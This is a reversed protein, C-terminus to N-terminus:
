GVVVGVDLVEVDVMEGVVDVMEGVTDVMEDVVELTVLGVVVEVDVLVGAVDLEVLAGVVVVAVSVAGGVVVLVTLVTVCARGYVRPAGHRGSGTRRLSGACGIM